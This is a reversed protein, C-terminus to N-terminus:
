AASYNVGALVAENVWIQLWGAVQMSADEQDTDNAAVSCIEAFSLGQQLGCLARTEHEGLSRFHPQLDKRWVLWHVPENAFVAEPPTEGHELALWIETANWQLQLIQLSPQLHFGISEWADAGIAALAETTLVPADAADFSLGLAWEFAALESVVPHDPLAQKVFEAFCDGYWRMNRFHSPHIQAYAACLEAFLEDGVYAHTKDFSSSLADHLRARYANYYIALRDDAKLGYHAAIDCLIEPRETDAGLVYNQFDAQLRHLSPNV